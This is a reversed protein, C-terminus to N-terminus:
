PTRWCLVSVVGIAVGSVADKDALGILLTSGDDLPLRWFSAM